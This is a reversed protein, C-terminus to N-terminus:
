GESPGNDCVSIREVLTSAWRGSASSTGSALLLEQEGPDQAPPLAAVQADPLGRPTELLTSASGWSSPAPLNSLSVASFPGKLCELAQLARCTKGTMLTRMGTARLWCRCTKGDHDVRLADVSGLGPLLPVPLSPLVRLRCEGADPPLTCAGTRECGSEQVADIRKAPVM